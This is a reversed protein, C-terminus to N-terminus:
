STGLPRDNSELAQTCGDNTMSEASQNRTFIERAWQVRRSAFGRLRQAIDEPYYFWTEQRVKLKQAIDPHHTALHRNVTYVSGLITTWFLGVSILPVAAPIAGAMALGITSNFFVQDFFKISNAPLYYAIQRNWFRRTVPTPRFGFERKGTEPNKMLWPLYLNFPVSGFEVDPRGAESNWRLSKPFPITKTGADKGTEQEARALYDLSNRMEQNAFGNHWPHLTAAAGLLTMTRLYEAMATLHVESLSFDQLSLHQAGSTTILYVGLYYALSVSQTKAQRAWKPGRNRWNSYTSQLTGITTGFLQGWLAIAAPAGHNDFGPLLQSLGWALAGTTLAQAIGAFVGLVFDDTTPRKYTAQWWPGLGRQRPLVEVMGPGFQGELEADPVSKIGMLITDRGLKFKRRKGAEDVYTKETRTQGADYHQKAVYRKFHASSRNHLDEDYLLFAVGSKQHRIKGIPVGDVNSFEMVGLEPMENCVINPPTSLKELFAKEGHIAKISELMKLCRGYYNKYAIMLPVLAEGSELIREVNTPGAARLEEALYKGWAAEDFGDPRKFFEVGEFRQGSFEQGRLPPTQAFAGLPQLAVSLALVLCVFPKTVQGLGSQPLM